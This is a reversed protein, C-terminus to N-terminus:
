KTNKNNTFQVTLTKEIKIKNKAGDEFLVQYKISKTMKQLTLGVKKVRLMVGWKNKLM